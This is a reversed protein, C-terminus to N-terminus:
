YEVCIKGRLLIRSIGSAPSGLSGLTQSELAVDLKEGSGECGPCLFSGLHSAPGCGDGQGIVVHVNPMDKVCKEILHKREEESFECKKNPNKMIAVYLIDYMKAAREIIDLHGYTIPDFTGPYMAIRVIPEGQLLM